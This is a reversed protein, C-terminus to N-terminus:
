PDYISICIILTVLYAKSILRFM